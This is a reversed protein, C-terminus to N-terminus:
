GLGRERAAAREREVARIAERCLAGAVLCQRAHSAKKARACTLAWESAHMEAEELMEVNRLLAFAMGSAFAEEAPRLSETEVYGVALWYVCEEVTM